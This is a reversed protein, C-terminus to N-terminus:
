EQPALPLAEAGPPIQAIGLRQRLVPLGDELPEIRHEGPQGGQLAGGDRHHLSRDRLILLPEVAVALGREPEIVIQGRFREPRLEDHPRLRRRGVERVLEDGVDAVQVAFRAGMARRQDEADHTGGVVPLLVEIGHESEVIFHAPVVLVVEHRKGLKERHRVPHAGPQPQHTQRVRVERAAPVILRGQRGRAELERRRHAILVGVAARQEPHQALGVREHVHGVVGPEAMGGGAILMELYRPHAGQLGVSEQDAGGVVTNRANDPRVARYDRASRLEPWVHEYGGHRRPAAQRGVGM